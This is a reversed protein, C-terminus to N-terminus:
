LKTHTNEVRLDHLRVAIIFADQTYELSSEIPTFEVEGRQLADEAMERATTVDPATVEVKGICDVRADRKFTAIYKSM